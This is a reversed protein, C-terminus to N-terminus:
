PKKRGRTSPERNGNTPDPTELRDFGPLPYRSQGTELEDLLADLEKRGNKLREKCMRLKYGAESTESELRRFAERAARIEDILNSMTAGLDRRIQVGHLSREMGHLSREMGHLM